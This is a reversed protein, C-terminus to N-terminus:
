SSTGMAAFYAPFPRTLHRGGCCGPAGITKCSKAQASAGSSAGLGKLRRGGLGQVGVQISPADVGLKVAASRVVTQAPAQVKSTSATRKSPASERSPGDQRVRTRPSKDRTSPSPMSSYPRHRM